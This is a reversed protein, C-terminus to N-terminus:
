NKAYKPWTNVSSNQMKDTAPLNSCRNYTNTNVVAIKKEPVPHSQNRFPFLVYLHTSNFFSFLQLRVQNLPFGPDGPISFNGDLALNNVEKTAERVSMNATDLILVHKGGFYYYNCTALLLYLRMVCIGMGGRRGVLWGVGLIGCVFMEGLRFFFFFVSM